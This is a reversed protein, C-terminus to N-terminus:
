RAHDALFGLRPVVLEGRAQRVPERYAGYFLSNCDLWTVIREWEEPALKM